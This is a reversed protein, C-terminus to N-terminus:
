RSSGASVVLAMAARRAAALAAAESAFVADDVVRQFPLLSVHEQPEGDAADRVAAFATWGGNDILQRASLELRFRGLIEVQMVRGKTTSERMAHPKGASGRKV